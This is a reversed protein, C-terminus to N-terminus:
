ALDDGDGVLPLLYYICVVLLLTGYLLINRPSLAKKPKAGRPGTM